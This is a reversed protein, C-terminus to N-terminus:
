KKLHNSLISLIATAEELRGGKELELLLAHAHAIPTNPFGENIPEELSLLLNRYRNFRPHSCIENIKSLPLRSQGASYNKITGYPLGTIEAFEKLSLGELRCIRKIQSEKDSKKM